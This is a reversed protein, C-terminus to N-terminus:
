SDDEDDDIEDDDDDDDDDPEGDEDDDEFGEFSARINRVVLEENEEGANATAPDILAAAADIFWGAVDVTLTVGIPGDGEGVVLPPSLAVEQGVNLASTYVFGDGDFTGTVRISIGEFEPHEALIAADGDDGHGDVRHVEFEVEDYTGPAIEVMIQRAVSGDTPLAVVMPGVEAEACNDDGGSECEEGEQEFEIENLVIEASDIVLVRVGDDVVLAGTADPAATLGSGAVGPPALTLAVAFGTTRTGGSGGDAEGCGALAVMAALALLCAALGAFRRPTGTHHFGYCTSTM